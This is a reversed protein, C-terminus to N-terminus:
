PASAPPGLYRVVLATVDDYQEAGRAFAQVAEVVRNLVEGAPQGLHQQLVEILRPEGFENGEIDHAETVGDSYLVVTDGPKLTLKSSVYPAFDFLGVPMGDAELRRLGDEGLILAANHGASCYVLEGAPALQSYM